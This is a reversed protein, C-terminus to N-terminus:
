DKALWEMAEATIKERDEPSFGLLRRAAYRVKLSNRIGPAIPAVLGYHHVKAAGAVQQRFALEVEDPRARVKLNRATSIKPFMKGRRRAERGRRDRKIKRPEMASGDPQVNDSVRAANAQQLLKGIRRALMLRRGPALRQMVGALWPELATLEADM